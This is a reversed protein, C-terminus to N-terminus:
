AAIEEEHTTIKVLRLTAGVRKRASALEERARHENDFRFVPRNRASRIEYTTSM